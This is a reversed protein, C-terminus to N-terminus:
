HALDARARKAVNVQADVHGVAFLYGDLQLRHLRSVRLQEVLALQVFNQLAADAYRVYAPVADFFVVVNQDHVQEPGAELVQEVKARAAEGHFRHQHEGVLHYAADLKHVVFVENMAVDLGVVKQHANAAVAVFDKQDVEAEGFLVAVVACALVDHVSFVFIQGARGAVGGDVGVQAYLLAAAVVHLREAVDGHVEVPARKGPLTELGGGFFLFVFLYALFFHASWDFNQALCIKKKKIFNQVIAAAQPEFFTGVVHVQALQEANQESRQVVLVVVCKVPCHKLLLCGRGGDGEVRWAVLCGVLVLVAVAASVAISNRCGTNHALIRGTERGAHAIHGAVHGIRSKQGVVASCVCTKRNNIKSGILGLNIQCWRYTTVRCRHWRRNFFQVLLGILDLDIHILLDQARGASQDRCSKKQKFVIKNLM